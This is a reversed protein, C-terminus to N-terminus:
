NWINKRQGLFIFYHYEGIKGFPISVRNIKSLLTLEEKLTDLSEWKKHADKSKAWFDSVVVASVNEPFEYNRDKDKDKAMNMFSDQLNGEQIRSLDSDLKRCLAPFSDSKKAELFFAANENALFCDLRNRWHGSKNMFPIETYAIGNKPNQALFESAILTILNQELYEKGVRCPKFKELMKIYRQGASKVIEYLESEVKNSM